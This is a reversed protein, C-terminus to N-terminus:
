QLLRTTYLSAPAIWNNQRARNKLSYSVGVILPQEQRGGRWRKDGKEREGEEGDM